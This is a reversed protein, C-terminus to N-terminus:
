AKGANSVGLLRCVDRAIARAPGFKMGINQIWYLDRHSRGELYTRGNIEPDKLRRLESPSFDSSFTTEFYEQMQLYRWSSIVDATVGEVDLDTAPYAM